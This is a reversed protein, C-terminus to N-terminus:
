NWFIDGVNSLNFSMFYPRHIKFCRLNVKLSVNEVGYNDDDNNLSGFEGRRKAARTYILTVHPNVVRNILGNLM